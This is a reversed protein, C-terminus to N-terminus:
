VDYGWARLQDRSISDSGAPNSTIVMQEIYKGIMDFELNVKSKPSYSTFITNEMTHPIISVGVMSGEVSAITLSVGDVAISGVPIVYRRFQSPISIGFFWSTERREISEIVGVTDVHGSVLHGGLRDGLQLPLEINVSAQARLERLTTKALTEEVAVVSFSTGEKAVVTQCVGNIAVSDNVKLEKSSRPAAVAFSIGGGRQHLNTVKGIEQIIGTFM